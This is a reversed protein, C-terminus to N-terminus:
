NLDSLGSSKGREDVVAEPFNSECVRAAPDRYPHLAAQFAATYGAARDPEAVGLCFGFLRAGGQPRSFSFRPPAVQVVWNGFARHCFRLARRGLGSMHAAIFLVLRGGTLTADHTSLPLRSTL